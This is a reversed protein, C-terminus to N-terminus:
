SSDNPMQDEASCCCVPAHSRTATLCKHTHSHRTTSVATAPLASQQPPRHQSSHCTSSVATAASHVTYRCVAEVPPVAYRSHQLWGVATTDAASQRPPARSALFLFKSHNQSSMRSMRGSPAAHLTDPLQQATRDCTDLDHCLM